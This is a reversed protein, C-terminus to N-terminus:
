KVIANDALVALAKDYVVNTEIMIDDTEERLKDVTVGQEKAMKKLAEERDDKTIKIKEKDIIAYLLMENDMSPKIQNDTMYTKFQAKDMDNSKLFEDFTMNNATAVETYYETMYNLYTKIDKKPYNNVKSDNLLKEFCIYSVAREKVDAKYADLTPFGMKKAFTEDVKPLAYKSHLKIDFTTAKGALETSGYDKPFTVNITFSTGLEHGIIAEEFGPIFTGSGLELDYGTATGGDFAVGDKKGVYDITVTDGIDAVGTKVSEKHEDLDTELLSDYTKKYDDSSTDVEIGKYEGLEIYKDLNVNYLLRGKGGCGCLLTLVTIVCLIITILKKM